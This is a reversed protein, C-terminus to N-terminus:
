SKPEQNIKVGQGNAEFQPPRESQSYRRARNFFPVFILFPLKKKDDLANSYKVYHNRTM